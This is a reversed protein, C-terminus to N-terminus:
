RKLKFVGRALTRSGSSYSLIYEGHLPVGILALATVPESNALVNFRSNTLRVSRTALVRHDRLSRVSVTLASSGASRSLYAVWAITQGRYFTSRARVVDIQHASVRHFGFGFLIKGANDASHGFPNSFSCSATVALVVALMCCRAM